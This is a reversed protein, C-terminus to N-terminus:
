GARKTLAAKRKEIRDIDDLLGVFQRGFATIRYEVKLPVVGLIHLSWKCGLISELM